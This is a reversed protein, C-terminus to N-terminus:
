NNLFTTVTVVVDHWNVPTSFWQISKNRKFWTRQRKALNLHDQVLKKKAAELSEVGEIYERCSKYGPARLAENDWGYLKVLLKIENILGAKFMADARAKLRQRLGERDTRLGIVLTNPRLESKVSVLGDTEIMRILHRPNQANKPMPLGRELITLQLETISKKNLYERTNAAPTRFKYDFLVSDVYLGSGGAMIPLKGRQSIEEIAKNAMKKFEAASFKEDPDVVDLLHHPVAAREKPTPKATGIDMDRYVTRSDAAIIEGNFQKALKIALASKGAGTEGVIVILPKSM